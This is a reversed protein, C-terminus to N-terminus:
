VTIKWGIVEPASNLLRDIEPLWSRQYRMESFVTLHPANLIDEKLIQLQQQTAGANREKVYEVLRARYGGFANQRAARVVERNMGLVDITFLVREEESKSIGSRPVFQFTGSLVQGQPTVGGLDLELLECPDEIRPNILASIGHPPPVIPDKKGRFHENVQGNAVVGFRNSKPSNCPGCAFLYNDWDFALEPFFNKPLIHEVEDALSDECYSCRVSGVCMEALTSRILEFAKKRAVTNLKEEWQKKAAAVKEVYTPLSNVMVKLLAIEAAAVKDLDRNEIYLM